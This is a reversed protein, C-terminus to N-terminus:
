CLAVSYADGPMAWDDNAYRHNRAIHYTIATNFM